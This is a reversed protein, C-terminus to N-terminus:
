RDHTLDTPAFLDAIPVDLANAIKGINDLSVNREGREVDSVYTRHLGSREALEEQSLGLELRQRRVAAGFQIRLETLGGSMEILILM